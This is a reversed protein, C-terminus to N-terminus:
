KNRYFDLVSLEHNGCFEDEVSFSQSLSSIDIKKNIVLSLLEPTHEKEWDIKIFDRGVVYLTDMSFDIIGRHVKKITDFKEQSVGKPKFTPTLDNTFGKMQGEPSTLIAELLLSYRHLTLKNIYEVPIMNGYAANCQGGQELIAQATSNTLFYYGTLPIDTVKMIAKQITCSYGIDVIAPCREAGQTQQNWYQQFKNKKNGALETLPAICKTLLNSVTEFDEPLKIQQSITEKNLIKTFPTLEEDEIGFRGTLLKKFTGNYHSSLLINLDAPQEIAALGIFSRSCYFYSSEPLNIDSGAIEPHETIKKYLINLLWGERSLFLLKSNNGTIVSKILWAMFSFIIPGIITYGFLHPDKFVVANEGPKKDLHQSIRNAILGLMLENQWTHNKRFISIISRGGKINGTLSAPRLIHVPTIFKKDVLVQIDSHENDGIHLLQKKTIHEKKLVFEWMNGRDKRYGTESSLYVADFFDIENKKLIKQIHRKELYMDSILILRKGSKKITKAIEVVATRKRLINQETSIELKKLEEILELNLEYQKGMQKYIQSITIDEDEKLTNRLTSESTKRMAVFNHIGFKESIKKELMMFVANPDAFPRILLTDFIDFSIVDTQEVSNLIKDAITKDTYQDIIFSSENKFSIENTKSNIFIHKLGATHTSFVFCREIAHHLTNDTQGSEKPFDDISFNLDMLPILATTKAWFMSGAPYDIYQNLDVNKYGLKHLLQKGQYGNSLWTHAWYPLGPFTEPYILGTEPDEAFRKLIANIIKENGLLSKLLYKRWDRGFQPSGTYNSKKTHIHAIIDMKRIEERFAILMPAIDRGRNPVIKITMNIKKDLFNQKKLIIKKDSESTVSLFLESPIPINNLYCCLEEFLDTYFLHVSIGIKPDPPTQPIAVDMCTTNSVPFTHSFLHNQLRGFVCKLGGQRYRILIKDTLIMLSRLHSYFNMFFKSQRILTTTIRIPKTYKWCRSNLIDTYDSSLKNIKKELNNYTDTLASNKNQLVSKEETLIKYKIELKQHEALLLQNETILLNHDASLNKHDTILKSHADNLNQNDSILQTHLKELIQHDSILQSHLNELIQHDSILQSHLNELKQHNKILKSHLDCLKLHAKYNNDTADLLKQHEEHLIKHADMTKGLKTECAMLKKLWFRLANDLKKEDWIFKWKAILKQRAYVTKNEDNSWGVHSNGGARYSASIQDIHLFNTYCSFQLWLDWDEFQDFQEDMKCGKDLLTRKFLLAHIPITNELMLLTPDFPTNFIHKAPKGPADCFKINAYAALYQPNNQLADILISIHQPEFWDDDDLFILYQGNAARLGINGASSRGVNHKQNLLQISIDQQRFHSLVDSIDCGGDNVVVIELPSYSQNVISQLAEHLLLPRDKTRVIVSVLPKEFNM